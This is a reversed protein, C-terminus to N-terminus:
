QPYSSQRDYHVEKMKCSSRSGGPRTSELLKAVNRQESEPPLPFSFWAGKLKTDRKRRMMRRTWIQRRRARKGTRRGFHRQGKQYSREKAKALYFPETFNAKLRKRNRWYSRGPLWSSIPTKSNAVLKTDSVFSVSSCGFEEYDMRHVLQQERAESAEKFHHGRPDRASEKDMELVFPEDPSVFVSPVDPLGVTAVESFEVLSSVGSESSEMRENNEHSEQDGATKKDVGITQPEDASVFVSPVEASVTTAVDAFMAFSNVELSEEVKASEM